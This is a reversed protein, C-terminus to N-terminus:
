IVDERFDARAVELMLAAAILNLGHEREAPNGAQESFAQSWLNKNSEIM